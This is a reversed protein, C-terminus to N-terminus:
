TRRSPSGTLCGRRMATFSGSRRSSSCRFRRYRRHKDNLRRDSVLMSETGSDSHGCGSSKPPPWRNSDSRLRIKRRSEAALRRSRPACLSDTAHLFCDAPCASGLQARSLERGAHPAVFLVIAEGFLEHPQGVAACAAVETELQAFHQEVQAPHVQYGKPKIVLKSRGALVLGRDNLIVWIARTVSAM